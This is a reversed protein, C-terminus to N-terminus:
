AAPSRRAELRLLYTWTPVKAGRSVCFTEADGIYDFGAGTLVRASISNDQFVSAFITASGLPNAATLARVAESALGTNWFAPAVWYGIEAQNPAGHLMRTLSIVGVLEGLGSSSGDLAWVEERRNPALARTIFAESTGPPLPHPISSTSAAVRKDGAYLSLLGADSRRLPRLVVRDAVIEPQGTLSVTESM